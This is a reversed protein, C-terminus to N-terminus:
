PKFLNTLQKQLKKITDSASDSTARTYHSNYSKEVIKQSQCIDIFWKESIDNNLTKKLSYIIYYLLYKPELKLTEASKLTLINSFEEEDCTIFENLKLFSYIKSLLKTSFYENKTNSNSEKAINIDLLPFIHDEYFYYFELLYSQFYKSYNNSFMKLYRDYAVLKSKTALYRTKCNELNFLFENENNLPQGYASNNHIKLMGFYNDSALALDDQLPKRYNQLELYRSQFISLYDIKTKNDANSILENLKSIYNVRINRIVNKQHLDLNRYSNLFEIKFNKNTLIKYIKSHISAIDEFSYINIKDKRMWFECYEQYAFFIELALNWGM